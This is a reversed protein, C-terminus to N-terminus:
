DILDVSIRTFGSRFSEAVIVLQEKQQLKVDRARQQRSAYDAGAKVTLDAVHGDVRKPKAAATYIHPKFSPPKDAEAKLQKLQTGLTTLASAIPLM